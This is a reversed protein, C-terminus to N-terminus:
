KVILTLLEQAKDKLARHSAAKQALELAKQKM